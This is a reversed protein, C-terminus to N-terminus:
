DDAGCDGGGGWGSGFFSSDFSTDRNRGYYSRRGRNRVGTALLLIVAFIIVGICIGFWGIGFLSLVFGCLCLLGIFVLM